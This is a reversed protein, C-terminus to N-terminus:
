RHERTPRGPKLGGSPQTSFVPEDSYTLMADDIKAARALEAAKILERVYANWRSWACGQSEQQRFNPDLVASANAAFRVRNLRTVAEHMLM